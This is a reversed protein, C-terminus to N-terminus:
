PTREDEDVPEPDDLEIDEDEEESGDDEEEFFEEGESAEEEEEEPKAFGEPDIKRAARRGLAVGVNTGVARLAPRAIEKLVFVIAKTLLSV